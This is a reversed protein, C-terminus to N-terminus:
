GLGCLITSYNNQTLGTAGNYIGSATYTIDTYVEFSEEKQAFTFAKTSFLQQYHYNIIMDIQATYDVNSEPDYDIVNAIYQRIDKLNM